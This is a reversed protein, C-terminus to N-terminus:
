ANPLFNRRQHTHLGGCIDYNICPKAPTLHTFRHKQCFRSSNDLLTQLISLFLFVPCIFGPLGVKIAKAQITPVVRFYNMGPQDSPCILLEVRILTLKGKMHPSQLQFLLCPQLMQFHGPTPSRGQSPISLHM